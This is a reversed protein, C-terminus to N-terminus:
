SSPRPKLLQSALDLYDECLRRESARYYDCYRARIDSEVEVGQRTRMGGREGGRAEGADADEEGYWRSGWGAGAVEEPEDAGDLAHLRAKMLEALWRVAEEHAPEAAGCSTAVGGAPAEVLSVDQPLFNSTWSILGQPCYM